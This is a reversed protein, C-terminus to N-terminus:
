IRGLTQKAAQILAAKLDKNKSSSVQISFIQEHYLVSITGASQGTMFVASEGLNSILETTVDQKPQTALQFMTAANVGYFDKAGLLSVVVTDEGESGDYLCTLGRGGGVEKGQGASSGLITTATQQSVLDCAKVPNALALSSINLFILLVAATALGTRYNM